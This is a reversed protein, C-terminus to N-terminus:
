VCGFGLHAVRQGSCGGRAFASASFGGGSVARHHRLGRGGRRRGSRLIIAAGWAELRQFSQPQPHFM